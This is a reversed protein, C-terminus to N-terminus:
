TRISYGIKGQFVLYGLVALVVGLVCAVIGSRLNPYEFAVANGIITEVTTMGYIVGGSILLIGFLLVLAPLPQGASFWHRLEAL